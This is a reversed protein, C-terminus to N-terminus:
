ICNMDLFTEFLVQLDTDLVMYKKKYSSVKKSFISSPIDSNSTPNTNSLYPDFRFDALFMWHLDEDFNVADLLNFVVEEYHTWSCFFLM